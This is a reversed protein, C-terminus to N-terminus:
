CVDEMSKFSWPMYILALLILSSHASHILKELVLLYLIPSPLKACLM